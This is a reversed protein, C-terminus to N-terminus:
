DTAVRQMGLLSLLPGTLKGAVVEALVRGKVRVEVNLAVACLAKAILRVAEARDRIGRWPSLLQLADELTEFHLIIRNGVSEVLPAAPM